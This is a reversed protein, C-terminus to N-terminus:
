QQCLARVRDTIDYLTVLFLGSKDVGDTLPTATAIATKTEGSKCCIQIQLHKFPKGSSISESLQEQWAFIVWNRYESNPYARPWWEELTPLENPSYGFTDVFAANVYTINGESDNVVFPIPSSDAVEVQFSYLGHQPVSKSHATTDDSRTLFFPEKDDGM